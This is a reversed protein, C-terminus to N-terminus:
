IEEEDEPSVQAGGAVTVEAVEAKIKKKIRELREADQSAKRKEEERVRMKIKLKADLLSRVKVEIGDVSGHKASAVEKVQSDLYLRM